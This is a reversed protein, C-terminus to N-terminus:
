KIEKMPRQYIGNDTYRTKSGLTKEFEEKLEKLDDSNLGDNACLSM